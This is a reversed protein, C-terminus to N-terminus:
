PKNLSEIANQYFSYEQDGRIFVGSMEQGSAVTKGVFFAPTGAVGIQDGDAMDARQEPSPQPGEESVEVQNEPLALCEDLKALNIGPVRNVIEAFKAQGLLEPSDFFAEHMEMFKGQQQACATIAGAQSAMAHISLPYDRFIFRVRGTDIYDRKLLPFTAKNFKACFGCQYDFFEMMTIPADPRGLAFDNESSASLKLSAKQVPSSKERAGEFAKKIYTVSEKIEAVDAQLKEMQQRLQKMDSTSPTDASFGCQPFLVLASIVLCDVIKM